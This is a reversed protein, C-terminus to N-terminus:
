EPITKLRGRSERPIKQRRSKESHYNQIKGRYSNDHFNLAQISLLDEGYFAELPLFSVDKGELMKIIIPAVQVVTDAFLETRENGVSIDDDFDFDPYEDQFAEAKQLLNKWRRLTHRDIPNKFLIHSQSLIYRHKQQSADADVVSSIALVILCFTLLMLYKKM